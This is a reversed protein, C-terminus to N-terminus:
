GAAFGQSGEHQMKRGTRQIQAADFKTAFGMNSSSLAYDVGGGSGFFGPPTSQMHDRWWIRDYFLAVVQISWPEHCYFKCGPQLKPWLHLLCDEVSSALDADEFVLVIANTDLHQLTDCYLGVVFHCADLDGHRRVNERVGELGRESRFEGAKWEYYTEHIPHADIVEDERPPPLGEFSDCVFLRRGTLACALSLAVTSGGEFCGCEVVDGEISAPIGVIERVLVLQQQLTTLSPFEGAAFYLAAVLKLKAVRSIGNAGGTGDLVFRTALLTTSLWHLARRLRDM